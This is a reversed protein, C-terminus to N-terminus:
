RVLLLGILKLRDIEGYDISIKLKALTADINVGVAEPSFRRLAPNRCPNSCEECIGCSGARLLHSMRYGKKFAERELELMVRFAKEKATNWEKIYDSSEMKYDMVLVLTDEYERLIKRFDEITPVHPPCNMRKGYDACGYACKLSIRDEVVVESSKLKYAEIKNEKAYDLLYEM